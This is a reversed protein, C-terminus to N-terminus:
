YPDYYQTSHERNLVTLILYKPGWPDFVRLGLQELYEQLSLPLQPNQSPLVQLGRTSCAAQADLTEPVEQSSGDQRYWSLEFIPDYQLARVRCM